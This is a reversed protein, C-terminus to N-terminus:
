SFGWWGAGEGGGLRTGERRALPRGRAGDRELREEGGDPLRAGAVRARRRAAGRGAGAAARHQRHHHRLAAGPEAAHVVAVRQDGRVGAACVAAPQVRRAGRAGRGVPRGDDHPGRRAAVLTPDLLRPERRAAHDARLEGAAGRDPAAHRTHRRVRAAHLRRLPPAAAASVAALRARSLRRGAVAPRALRPLRRATPRRPAHPPAQLAPRAAVTRRPHRRAARRLAGRDPPLPQAVAPRPELQGAVHRRLAARAAAALRGTAVLAGSPLATRTRPWPSLSPRCPVVRHWVSLSLVAGVFSLVPVPDPLSLPGVLSLVADCLSLCSRM